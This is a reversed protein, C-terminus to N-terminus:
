RRKCFLGKYTAKSIDYTAVAVYIQPNIMSFFTKTANGLESSRSKCVKNHINKFNCKISNRYEKKRCDIKNIM